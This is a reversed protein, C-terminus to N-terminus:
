EEKEEFASCVPCSPAKWRATDSRFTREPNGCRYGISSKEDTLWKCDRCQKKGQERRRLYREEAAKSQRERDAARWVQHLSWAVPDQIYSLQRAHEHTEALHALAEEITM